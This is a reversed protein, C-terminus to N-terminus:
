NLFLQNKNQFYYDKLCVIWWLSYTPFNNMWLPLPSQEKAFTLTNEVEKLEGFLCNSSLTEPNMDGIWVLRDRKIGDWFYGNQLCLRLTYAATDFIQNITDDDCRFSGDFPTKNIDVASLVLKLNIIADDSLSDIRVFRFGSQGYINDSMIPLNVCFDRPSHANVSNKEGLESCTESVSKGLRIRVRGEGSVHYTLIRVGGQIEKGFDLIVSCKGNLVTVEDEYIGIQLPKQKLLLDVNQVNGSYDVIRTPTFFDYNLM